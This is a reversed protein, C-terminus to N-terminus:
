VKKPECLGSKKNRHYGNPCKKLKIKPSKPKPSKPKRRYKRRYKRSLSKPKTKSECLGTKKNRRSGKPCKKLKSPSKQNVTPSKRPSKPKTIPSKQKVKFTIYQKSIGLDKLTDTEKIYIKKPYDIFLQYGKEFKTDLFDFIKKLKTTNLIEDELILEFNSLDSHIIIINHHTPKNEINSLIRPTYNKSVSIINNETTSEKEGLRINKDDFKIIKEIIKDDNYFVLLMKRDRYNANKVIASLWNDNYKYEIKDNVKFFRWPIVFTNKKAIKNQHVIRVVDLDLFKIKFNSPNMKIYEAEKWKNDIDDYADIIDGSKANVFWVLNLKKRNQNNIFDIFEEFNGYKDNHANYGGICDFLINEKKKNIFSKNEKIYKDAFTIFKRINVNDYNEFIRSYHYNYNKWGLKHYTNMYDKINDFFHTNKKYQEYKSIIDYSDYVIDCIKEIYAFNFRSNQIEDIIDNIEKSVKEINTCKYNKDLTYGVDCKKKEIELKKKPLINVISYEKCDAFRNFQDPYKMRVNMKKVQKGSIKYKAIGTFTILLNRPLLIESENGYKTTSVMNIYPIGKEVTFEYLCCDYNPNSFNYAVNQETSTSIYNLVEITEYMVMYDKYDTKMGRYVIFNNKEIRPAYNMFCEDIDRIKSKVNEIAEIKKKGFRRYNQKFWDSNFTSEGELLYRNITGDWQYSYNFLAKSILESFYVEINNFKFNKHIKEFLEINSLLLKEKNIAKIKNKIKSVKFINTNSNFFVDIKNDEFLYKEGFYYGINRYETSNYTDKYMLQNNELVCKVYIDSVPSQIFYSKKLCINNDDLDIIVINDDTHSLWEKIEIEVGDIPDIGTKKVM